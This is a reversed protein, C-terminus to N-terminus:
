LFALTSFMGGLLSALPNQQPQAGTVTSTSGAGPIAGASGLLQLGLNFPFMESEFQSQNIQQQELRRQGGVADLLTDPFLAARQSQPALSLGKTMADLGTNYADSIIKSSTDGVQRLYGRNALDNAQVNKTGGFGSFAGTGISSHNLGPRIVREFEDRIPNIGAQIAGQLGPNTNVDLVDGLLFDHAGGVSEAMSKASGGTASQIINEQAQTSLPDVSPVV